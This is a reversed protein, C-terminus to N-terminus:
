ARSTLSRPTRTGEKETQGDDEKAMDERHEAERLGLPILTPQSHASGRAM